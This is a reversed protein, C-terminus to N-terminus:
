GTAADDNELYDTIRALVRELTAIERPSLQARLAEDRARAVAALRRHLQRGAATLRIRTVRRDHPDQSRLLLGEAAMRDIHRTLTPAEVFLRRALERQSLGDETDLQDLVLWFPMSAGAAAMHAEFHARLSKSTLVIRRALSDM